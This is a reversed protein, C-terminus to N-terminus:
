GGAAADDGDGASGTGLRELAIQDLTRFAPEVALRAKAEALWSAAAEAPAGSLMELEVIASELDGTQLHAEARAVRAAPGDGEVDAGVPRVTVLDTVRGILRDFWGGEAADVAGSAGDQQAVQVIARAVEPFRAVLRIKSPAGTAAHPALVDLAPAASALQPDADALKNLTDLESAYSRGENLAAGLRGVALMFATADAQEFRDTLIALQNRLGANEDILRQVEAKVDALSEAPVETMFDILLQEIGTVREGLAEIQAAVAPAALSGSGSAGTESTSADAVPDVAQSELVAAPEDAAAAVQNGIPEDAEPLGASVYPMTELPDAGGAAASDGTEPDTNGTTDSGTTDSGATDSSATDGQADAIQADAIQTDPATDSENAADATTEEAASDDSTASEATTSPEDETWPGWAPITALAALGVFVTVVAASVWVWGRARRSPLPDVSPSPRAADPTRPDSVPAAARAEPMPIAESPSADDAEADLMANAREVLNLMSALDPREATDVSRWPLARVVDAVAPSFCLAITGALGHVLAAREEGLGKILNVFTEATRASFLMVMDIQRDSLRQLLQPSLADAQVAEYIVERRLEFGADALLTALDGAVVSGAGHFLPGDEPKLRHRVMRVLGTVDGDAAEVNKFGLNRAVRASAEGTTIVPTDRRRDLAAFARVGNSSTFLLAQVGNVDFAVDRIPKIRLMPEILVHLERARLTDALPLADEEPRTILVTRKM